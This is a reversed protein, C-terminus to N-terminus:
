APFGVRAIRVLHFRRPRRWAAVGRCGLWWVVRRRRRFIADLRPALAYHGSALGLTRLWWLPRVAAATLMWRSCAMVYSMLRETVHIGVIDGPQPETIWQVDQERRPDDPVDFVDESSGVDHAGSDVRVRPSRGNGGTLYGDGNVPSNRPWDARAGQRGGFRQGPPLQVGPRGCRPKPCLRRANEPDGVAGCVGTAGCPSRQQPGAIAAHGGETLWRVQCAHAATDAA